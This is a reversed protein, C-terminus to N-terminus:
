QTSITARGCRVGRRIVPESRAGAATGECSPTMTHTPTAPSREEQWGEVRDDAYGIRAASLRYGIASLGYRRTMELSILWVIRQLRRRDPQPAVCPQM